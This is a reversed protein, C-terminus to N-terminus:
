KPGLDVLQAHMQSDFSLFTFREAGDFAAFGTGIKEDEYSYETIADGNQTDFIRIRGVFVGSNDKSPLVFFAAIRNHAIKINRIQSRQPGDLRFVRRIRGAADICLVLGYTGAPRMVYLLGDDGPEAISLSISNSLARGPEPPNPQFAKGKNKLPSYSSLPAAEQSGRFDDIKVDKEPHVTALSRGSNSLVNMLPRSDSASNERGAVLFEGSPFLAIQRPSAVGEVSIASSFDGDDDFKVIKAANSESTLVYLEGHSGPAFDLILAKEFGPVSALVFRKASGNKDIRTITNEAGPREPDIFSYDPNLFVNGESDGKLVGRYALIVENSATYKSRVAVQVTPIRLAESTTQSAPTNPTQTPGCIIAGALVAPVAALKMEWRETLGGNRKRLSVSIVV